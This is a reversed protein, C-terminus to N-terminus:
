KKKKGATEGYKKVFKYVSRNMSTKSCFERELSAIITKVDVNKEEAQKRLISVVKKKTNYIKASVNPNDKRWKTEFAMDLGEIGRITGDYENEYKGEGVWEQYLDLLSEHPDKKIAYNSFEDSLVKSKKVVGFDVGDAFQKETRMQKDDLCLDVIKTIFNDSDKAQELFFREGAQLTKQNPKFREKPRWMKGDKTLFASICRTYEPGSYMSSTDGCKNRVQDLLSIINNNYLAPMGSKQLLIYIARKMKIRDDRPYRFDANKQIRNVGAKKKPVSAEKTTNAEVRQRKNRKHREEADQVRKANPRRNKKRTSLRAQDPNQEVWRKQEEAHRLRLRDLEKFNGKQRLNELIIPRMNNQICRKCVLYGDIPHDKSNAGAYCLYSRENEACVCDKAPVHGFKPTGICKAGPKYSALQEPPNGNMLGFGEIVKRMAKEGIDDRLYILVQEHLHMADSTAKIGPLANKFFDRPNANNRAHRISSSEEGNCTTSLSADFKEQDMFFCQLCLRVKNAEVSDVYNNAVMLDLQMCYDKAIGLRTEPTIIHTYILFHAAHVVLRKTGDKSKVFTSSGVVIQNKTDFNKEFWGPYIKRIAAINNTQTHVMTSADELDNNVLSQLFAKSGSALAEDSPHMYQDFGNTTMIPEITAIIRDPGPDEEELLRKLPELVTEDIFKASPSILVADTFRGYATGCRLLAMRNTLFEGEPLKRQAKAFDSSSEANQYKLCPWSFLHHIGHEDINAMFEIQKRLEQCIACNHDIAYALCARNREWGMTERLEPSPMQVFTEFFICCDNAYACGVIGEATRLYTTRELESRRDRHYHLAPLDLAIIDNVLDIPVALKIEEMTMVTCSKILKRNTKLMRQDTTRKKINISCGFKTHGNKLRAYYVGSEDHKTDQLFMKWFPSDLDDYVKEAFGYILKYVRDIQDREKQCECHTEKYEQIDGLFMRKRVNELFMEKPLREPLSLPESDLDNDCNTDSDTKSEDNSDTSAFSAQDSVSVIVDKSAAGYQPTYLDDESPSFSVMTSHLSSTSSRLSHSNSTKRELFFVSIM